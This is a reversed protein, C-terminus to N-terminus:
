LCKAVLDMIDFYTERELDVKQLGLGLVLMRTEEPNRVAIASAIQAAYLQALTERESSGTGGLVTTPTLHTMPLLGGGEDNSPLAQDAFTSYSSELPVHIWQALRGNQIITVIIKDSLFLSLVETRTGNVISAAQRTKAPFPAVVVHTPNIAGQTTSNAM